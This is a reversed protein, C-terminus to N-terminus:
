GNHSLRPPTFHIGPVTVSLSTLSALAAPPPLSCTCHQLSLSSLSPLAAAAQQLLQTYAQTQHAKADAAADPCVVALETVGAGAGQLAPPVAALLAATDPSHSCHLQVSTPLRGRIHLCQGAAQLRRLWAAETEGRGVELRLKARAANQLVFNQGGRGSQFVGTLAEAGAHEAFDRRWTDPAHQDPSACDDAPQGDYLAAAFSFKKGGPM